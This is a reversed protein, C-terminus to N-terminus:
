GGCGPPPPSVDTICGCLKTPVGKQQLTIETCIKGDPCNMKQGSPCITKQPDLWDCALQNCCCSDAFAQSVAIGVSFLALSLALLASSLMSRM